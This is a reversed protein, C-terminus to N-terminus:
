LLRLVYYLIAFIKLYLPLLVQGWRFALNRDLGARGFRLLLFVAIIDGDLGRLM